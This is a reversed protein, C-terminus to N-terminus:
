LYYIWIFCSLSTVVGFANFKRDPCADIWNWLKILVKKM